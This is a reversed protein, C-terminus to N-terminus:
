TGDESGYHMCYGVKHVNMKMPAEMALFIKDQKAMNQYIKLM